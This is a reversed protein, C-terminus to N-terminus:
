LKLMSKINKFKNDSVYNKIDTNDSYAIYHYLNIPRYSSIKKMIENMFKELKKLSEEILKDAKEILNYLRSKWKKSVETLIHLLKQVYKKIEKEDSMYNMIIWGTKEFVNMQYKELKKGELVVDDMNHCNRNIIHNDALKIGIGKFFNNRALCDRFTKIEGTIFNYATYRKGYHTRHKLLLTEDNNIAILSKYCHKYKTIINKEEFENIEVPISYDILSMMNCPILKNLENIMYSDFYRSKIKINNMSFKSYINTSMIAIKGMDNPNLSYFVLYTNDNIANKDWTILSGDMPIMSLSKVRCAKFHIQRNEYGISLDAYNNSSDPEQFIIAHIKNDKSKFTTILNMSNIYAFSNDTMSQTFYMLHEFVSPKMLFNVNANKNNLFPINKVDELEKIKKYIDKFNM